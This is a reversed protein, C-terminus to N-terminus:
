KQGKNWSIDHDKETLSNIFFMIGAVVSGLINVVLENPIM